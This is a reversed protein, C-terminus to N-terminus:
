LFASQIVFYIPKEGIELNIKTKKVLGSCERQILWQFDVKNYYIQLLHVGSFM